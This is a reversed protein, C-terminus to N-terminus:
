GAQGGAFVQLEKLQNGPAVKLLCFDAPQGPELGRSLGMLKGPTESYRPWVEQWDYGLMEAARFVGDIPRLASGALRDTGPQRVVQDAGVEVEYRWITYRGPPAGAAAMADTTYYIKGPPLARHCLRFFLPSVHIRDPILSATLGPTDFVRWVINDHKNLASGCANGLHTFCTAGAAVAARMIDTPTNTHGLSIKIGRAVAHEIVKLAGSREPAVTMLVPDNGIVSRLEDIHEPKPDCMLKPDHAGHFPSEASLFPGELHWGAIASQLEASQARLARLHRLRAMLKSWDDTILTLLFWTCAAARLKRCAGLLDDETLNDQQFDVGGYGNIQLDLLPPALWLDKPPPAPARELQSIVGDQWRLRVPQRTAYHWAYTEGHNM